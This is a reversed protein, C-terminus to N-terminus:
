PQAEALPLQVAAPGGAFLDTAPGMQFMPVERKEFALLDRQLDLGVIWAFRQEDFVRALYREYGSALSYRRLLVVPTDRPAVGAEDELHGNCYVKSFTVTRYNLYHLTAASMAAGDGAIGAHLWGRSVLV